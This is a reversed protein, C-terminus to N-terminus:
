RRGLLGRSLNEFLPAPGVSGLARMALSCAALALIVASGVHMLALVGAVGLSRV